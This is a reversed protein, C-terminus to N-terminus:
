PEDSNTEFSVELQQPVQEEAVADITPTPQADAWTFAIAVPKDAGGVNIDQADKWGMRAKTWWIQAGAHNHRVANEWLAKAVRVNAETMGTDLERRFYKRLTKNDIELMVAIEAQPIGYGTMALVQARHEKTPTFRGRRLDREHKM